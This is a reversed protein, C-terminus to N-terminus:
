QILRKLLEKAKADDPQLQVAHRAHVLAEAKQGDEALSEGLDRHAEGNQPMYQVAAALAQLAAARNGQGALCRGLGLYAPGYGPERETVQRTWGGTELRM